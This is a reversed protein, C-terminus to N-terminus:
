FREPRIMAYALYVIAAITVVATLNLILSSSTSTSNAEIAAFCQSLM